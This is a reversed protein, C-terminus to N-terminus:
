SRGEAKKLAAMAADACEKALQESGNGYVYSQLAHYCATLARKMDPAAAILHANATWVAATAGTRSTLLIEFPGADVISAGSNHEHVTWPGPTHNVTKETVTQEAM